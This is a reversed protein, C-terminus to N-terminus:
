KDYRYIKPLEAYASLRNIHAGITERTDLMESANLALVCHNSKEFFLLDGAEPKGFEIHRMHSVMDNPHQTVPDPLDVGLVGFVHIVLGYCDYEPGRGFRKYPAGIM